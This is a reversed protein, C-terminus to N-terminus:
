LKQVPIPIADHCKRRNGLIRNGLSPIVYSADSRELTVEMLRYPTCYGPEYTRNRMLSLLVKVTRKGHLERYLYWHTWPLNEPKGRPEQLKFSSSEFIMIMGGVVIREM